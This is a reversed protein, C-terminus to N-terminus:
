KEFAERAQKARRLLGPVTDRVGEALARLGAEHPQLYSKGMQRYFVEIFTNIDYSFMADLAALESETLSLTASMEVKPAHLAITVLEIGKGDERLLSYAKPHPVLRRATARDM